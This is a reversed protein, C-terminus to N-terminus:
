LVISRQRKYTNFINRMPILKSVDPKKNYTKIDFVHLQQEQSAASLQPSISM